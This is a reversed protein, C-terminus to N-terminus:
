CADTLAEQMDFMEASTDPGSQLTQFQLHMYKTNMFPSSWMCDDTCSPICNNAHVGAHQLTCM